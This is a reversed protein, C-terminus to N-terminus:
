VNPTCVFVAAAGADILDALGACARTDVEAALQQAARPQADAIGVLQVRSDRKLNQAHMRGAFGAGLIGIKVSM